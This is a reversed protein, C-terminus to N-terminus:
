QIDRLLKKPPLCNRSNYPTFDLLANRLLERHVHRCLSPERFTWLVAMRRASLGDCRHPLTVAPTWPQGRPTAGSPCWVALLPCGPPRVCSSFRGLRKVHRTIRHGGRRKEGGPWPRAVGPHEDSAILLVQCIQPPFIGCSLFSEEIQQSPRSNQRSSQPNQEFVPQRAHDAEGRLHYM